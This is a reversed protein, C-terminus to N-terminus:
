VGEHQGWFMRKIRSAVFVIVLFGLLAGFYDLSMSTQGTYICTPYVAVPQTINTCAGGNTRKCITLAGTTANVATCEATYVTTTNGWVQGFSGCREAHALLADPYCTGNFLATAM